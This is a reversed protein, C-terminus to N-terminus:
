RTVCAARLQFENYLGQNLVARCSEYTDEDRVFSVWKLEWEYYLPDLVRKFLELAMENQVNSAWRLEWEYYFGDATVAYFADLAHPNNTKMAWRMEWEFYAGDHIRRFADVAFQTCATRALQYEWIQVPRHQLMSMMQQQYPECVQSAVQASASSVGAILLLPLLFRIM